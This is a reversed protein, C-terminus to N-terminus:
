KEAFALEELNIHWILKRGDKTTTVLSGADSLLKRATKESCEMFYSVKSIDMSSDGFLDAQLMYKFCFRQSFSLKNMYQDIWNDLLQEYKQYLSNKEELTNYTSVIAEKFFGLYGMVFETLEGRNRKDNANKFLDYYKRRHEKIVYSIRLCASKSFFRSLMYSSIFRTMRGNGNYFPHTYGFFYHYLAVRILIDYNENNLISLASDM